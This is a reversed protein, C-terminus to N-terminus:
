VVSVAFTAGTHLARVASGNNETHYRGLQELYKTWVQARIDLCGLDAPEVREGDGTETNGLNRHSLM